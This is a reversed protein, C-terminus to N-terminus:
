DPVGVKLARLDEFELGLPLRRSGEIQEPSGQLIYEPVVQEQVNNVGKKKRILTARNQEQLM